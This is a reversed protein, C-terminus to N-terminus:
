ALCKFVRQETNAIVSHHVWYRVPLRNLAMNGDFEQTLGTAKGKNCPLM